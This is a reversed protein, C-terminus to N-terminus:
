ATAKKEAILIYYDKKRIEKLDPFYKRFAEYVAKMREETKEPSHPNFRSEPTWDMVIIIGGPKLVRYIEGAVKEVDEVHHLTTASTVLDFSSDPFPLYEAEGMRLHLRGSKVQESFLKEAEVLAFKNPDLTYISSNKLKDILVKLHVSFGTGIELVREIHKQKLLQDYIKALDERWDLRRRGYVNISALNFILRM